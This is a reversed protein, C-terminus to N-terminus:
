RLTFYLEPLKSFRTSVSISAPRITVTLLVLTQGGSSGFVQSVTLKAKPLIGCQLKSPFTQFFATFVELTLLISTLVVGLSSFYFGYAAHDGLQRRKDTPKADESSKKPPQKDGPYASSGKDAIDDELAQKDSPPFLKAFGPRASVEKLTGMEEIVGTQGLAIVLDAVPLACATISTATLLSHWAAITYTM